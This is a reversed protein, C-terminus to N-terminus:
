RQGQSMLLFRLLEETFQRLKSLDNMVAWVFLGIGHLARGAAESKLTVTAGPGTNYPCSIHLIFRSVSTCYNVGSMRRSWLTVPALLLRSIM